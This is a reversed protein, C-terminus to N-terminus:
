VVPFFVPKGDDDVHAIALERADVDVIKFYRVFRGDTRVTHGYHVAYADPFVKKAAVLMDRATDIRGVLRNRKIKIILGDHRLERSAVAVETIFVQHRCDPCQFVNGSFYGAFTDAVIDNKFCIYERNCRVCIPNNIM